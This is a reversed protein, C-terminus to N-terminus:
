RFGHRGRIQELADITGSIDGLPTPSIIELVRVGKFNIEDLVNLIEDFRVTGLGVRDHRWSTRTGDSLHLQGLKRALRRLAAVQDEAVFEANSVDFAVKLRPYNLTKLFPQLKGVTPIPTQPHSEVYITQNLRDAIRLLQELSDALRAKNEARARQALPASNARM